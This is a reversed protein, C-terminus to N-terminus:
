EDGGEGMAAKELAKIDEISTMHIDWLGSWKKESELIQKIDKPINAITKFFAIILKVM